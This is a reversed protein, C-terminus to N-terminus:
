GRRHRGRRPGLRVDERVCGQGDPGSITGSDILRILDALADPALPVSEIDIGLENMKRTLEGMVWNSAAKPNGSAAAAAEFYDAPRRSQTSFAPTTSPCHPVARHVPAAACGATRAPGGSVSDIWGREIQLPPLDPEPFYRYDHADEKSRM